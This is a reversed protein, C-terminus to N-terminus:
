ALALSVDGAVKRTSLLAALRRKKKMWVASPMFYLKIFQIKRGAEEYQTHTHQTAAPRFQRVFSFRNTGFVYFAGREAAPSFALARAVNPSMLLSVPGEDSSIPSGGDFGM